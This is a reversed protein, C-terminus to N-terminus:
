RGTGGRSAARRVPWPLLAPVRRMHEAYDPRRELSRRDMLPVSVFVFLAVMVLPGIVTWWWNPAAALGFLWIGWWFGIEGLYNPHRSWRWLGHDAIRGRNAPAATFRHLQRDALAEVAIASATVVTAVIDIANLPRTGAAVAPWAPLLGLFVVLTPMLQIGALNVLWWPLRGATQM